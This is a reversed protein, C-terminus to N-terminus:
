RGFAFFAAALRAKEYDDFSAARFGPAMPSARREWRFWPGAPTGRGFRRGELAAFRFSDKGRALAKLSFRQESYFVSVGV